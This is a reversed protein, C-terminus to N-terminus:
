SIALDLGRQPRQQSHLCSGAGFGDPYGRLGVAESQNSRSLGAIDRNLGVRDSYDGSLGEM